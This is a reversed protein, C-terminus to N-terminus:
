RVRTAVVLFETPGLLLENITDIAANVAAGDTAGSSVHTLRRDAGGSVTATVSFGRSSLLHTWTESHLPRGPALDRVVPSVASAWSEPSASHLALVGDVMIRSSVLDLLHERENPRLWQVSGTLVIGGLAENSVVDLHGLISEARVDVGRDLAPELALESPDVGYADVGAAVLVEVLSGDGCDGVVVRDPVSALAAAVATAWWTAGTHTSPVVAAPLDPSRHTEVTAELDEIHDVVVHFMRSVSWAFKVIQTVIFNMYWGLGKRVARKIYSGVAKNSATPVAIDVYASGDVLSLTERLRARGKLGLPSFELFLEDLERELGAPLDGSARRKRVEADIEAMVEDLYRIREAVQATTDAADATTPSPNRNSAPTDPTAPPPAAPPKPVPRSYGPTGQARPLPERRAAWVETTHRGRPRPPIPLRAPNLDRDGRPHLNSDERGCM